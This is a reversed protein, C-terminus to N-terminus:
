GEFLARLAPSATGLLEAALDRIAAEDTSDRAAIIRESGDPLLIEARIGGTFAAHAAVASRCSGGLAALLARESGVAASTPADDIAAIMARMVDDNARLEIGVAGQAPAPLFLEPPIPTGVDPRGLRDLGAAALLTADAEGTRLKSLRTDVNGRFPVVVLDPRAHLAQAARRPSSTGLRAGVALCMFDDCDNAVLRDRVDARPLMAAIALTDPRWTEVDKMSHVAIDIRGDHLAAELEKTWLAKGGIEALPRDQVKDGTTKIAVIAVADETWGHAACLAEAVMRAQTLALPSGRTGLKVM